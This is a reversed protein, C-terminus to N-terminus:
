HRYCLPPRSLKWAPPLYLYGPLKVGGPYPIEVCHAEGDLLRIAEGFLRIADKGISLALPYQWANKNKKKEEEEGEHKGGEGDWTLM